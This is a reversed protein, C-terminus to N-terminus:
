QVEKPLTPLEAALLAAICFPETKDRICGEWHQIYAKLRAVPSAIQQDLAETGAILREQHAKFVAVVLDAKTPFHYHISAKTIKVAESIDAYSFASYGLNAMLTNATKLIRDTTEGQM